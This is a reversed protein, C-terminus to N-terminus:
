LYPGLACLACLSFAAKPPPHVAWPHVPVRCLRTSYICLMFYLFVSPADGRGTKRGPPKMFAGAKEKNKTEVTARCVEAARHIFYHYIKQNPSPASQIHGGDLLFLLRLDM